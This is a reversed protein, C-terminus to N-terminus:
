PVMIIPGSRKRNVLEGHASSVEELSFVQLPGAGIVGNKVLDLLEQSATSLEEFTSMYHALIPRTVFLSGKQALTALNVDTVPGSANGFSVMLGKSSLCNLSTEWTTRGVGDFVVPVKEGKTLQMVREPVDETIYNITEWKSM